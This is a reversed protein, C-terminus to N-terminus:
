RKSTLPFPRPSGVPRIRSRSDLRDPFIILNRGPGAASPALLGEFGAARVQAALRQTPQWDAGLVDEPRLNLAALTTPDTLDLVRHLKVRVRALRYPSVRQGAARKGIEAACVAPSEGCYLAGFAGLPNYRGGHRLSGEISLPQKAFTALLARFFTGRVSRGPLGALGELKASPIV